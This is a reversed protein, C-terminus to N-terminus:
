AGDILLTKPRNKKGWFWSERLKAKEPAATEDITVTTQRGTGSVKLGVKALVEEVPPDGPSMVWKDFITGMEEGGVRVFQRRIEGEEFGPKGGKCMNWLTLEIEDLSHANNTRSRLEIDLLCGALWGTPYYDVGFGNSNGRGGATEGVRYSSEYPSVELRKPNGRVSQIQRALDKLYEADGYWGYRHPILSAYYDTVGELWWLGGTRPLKTYDFPGLDFSRIRKVNWLHFCEHALGRMSAPGEVISLFDQSSSAHELGGAGDGGDGAWIHWIYQSYPASGGFFDTESESIFKTIKLAKDMNLKDRATGRVALTHHKGRSEYSATRFKGITVPSDALIDYDKAEYGESTSNLAVALRWDKQLDFKVFCKAEKHGVLYLYISPGGYHLTDADSSFMGMQGTAHPVKRTYTITVVKAGKSDVHWTDSSPHTVERTTGDQATATVPGLGEGYNSLVYYGPAWNPMALDVTKGSCPVTVQVSVSGLDSSPTIRYHLPESGVQTAALLTMGFLCLM